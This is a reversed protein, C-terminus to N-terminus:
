EEEKATNCKLIPIGEEMYGGFLIIFDDEKKLKEFASDKIVLPIMDSLFDLTILHYVNIYKMRIEQIQKHKFGFVEQRAKKEILEMDQEYYRYIFEPRWLGSVETKDLYFDKDYMNIQLELKQTLCSTYLYCIHLIAIRNKKNKEQLRNCTELMRQLVKLFQANIISKNKKYEAQIEKQNILMQKTLIEKAYENLEESKLM